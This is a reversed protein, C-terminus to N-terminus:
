SDSGCWSPEIKLKINFNHDSIISSINKIRKLKNVSTKHGIMHDIKSFIGHSSSFFTYEMRQISHDTFISTQRDITNNLASTEKNIKWKFSMAM